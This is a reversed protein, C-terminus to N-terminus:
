GAVRDLDLPAATGRRVLLREIRTPSAQVVDIELGRLAFREGAVPIRGILEAVLGGFSAAGRSPLQVGFHQAVVEPPESGDLELVSGAASPALPAAADDEDSIEGVLGELLDEFTVLGATGGFEDFVVALHRHDRQMDLLLDGALRTVPAYSVPRVPLADDPGQKFLDFAHVMGTIDDLTGRYVPIRTYGSEAFTALVQAHTAEAPVAIMETRPTMIERVSREAFTMVGGVMVLEEGGLGNASGERALARVDNATDGSRTPLVFGLLASWARVIPELWELTHAARPVTFWRPLLYGSFLTVPVLLFTIILALQPLLFGDLLAPVVAGVMVMGLSTAAASAAVERQTVSVWDLSDDGGRLRRSITESLTARATTVLAAAGSSGVFAVALGLLLLLWNM